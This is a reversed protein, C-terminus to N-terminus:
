CQLM